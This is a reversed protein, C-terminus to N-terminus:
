LNFINDYIDGHSRVQINLIKDCSSYISSVCTLMDVFGRSMESLTIVFNLFASIIVFFDNTM